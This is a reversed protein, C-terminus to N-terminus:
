ASEIEKNLAKVENLAADGFKDTSDKYIVSRSVNIIYKDIGNEKMISAIQLASGGQAGVGPILVFLNKLLEANKKLEDPNTAGFVIGCNFNENWENCKKIVREYLAEGTELKLKEFDASSKNSTLALIFTIKDPYKLFEFASDFGMYPNITASDFRFYEFLSKAYMETTNGIDGRKADGILLIDAPMIKLTEELRKIGKSGYREYFAFNIKYAAAEEKTSDIVIKNFELVPDKYKHLHKPIKELDSDLGICIHKGHKVKASLKDQAKM